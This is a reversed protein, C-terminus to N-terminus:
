THDTGSYIWMSQTTGARKFGNKQYFPIAAKNAVLICQHFNQYKTLLRRLIETGIGQHQYHPHVLLHPFYAVLHGDSLANGLGVLQNQDWATILTHSNRLGKQLQTPKHAASWSNAQYLFLLQKQTISRTQRYQITATPM